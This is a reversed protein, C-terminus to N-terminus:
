DPNFDPFEISAIAHGIDCCVDWWLIDSLVDGIGMYPYGASSKAFTRALGLLVIIGLIIIVIVLWTPIQM